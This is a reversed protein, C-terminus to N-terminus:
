QVYGNLRFGNSRYWKYKNLKYVSPNEGDFYADVAEKLTDYYSMHALECTKRVSLSREQWREGKESTVGFSVNRYCVAARIMREAHNNTPDIKPNRLFLTISDLEDLIRAVLTSAGGGANKFEAARDRIEQKIVEIEIESHQKGKMKCLAQLKPLLWEGCKAIRECLSGKLKRAARILHALCTQRGYEWKIYTVFDDSILIGRWADILKYFAEKTRREDIRFFAFLDNCLVWLWHLHKGEPGFMRSSTEDVHNYESGRVKRAIADYYPILAESVRDLIKQIGGQSIVGHFVEQIIKQTQRRTTATQSDIYGIFATLLSGYARRYKEPVVGYVKKGCKACYGVYVHFHTVELLEQKLEIFQTTYAEVVDVFDSSGCNPCVEPKCDVVKNPKLMKQSAGPHHAKRRKKEKTVNKDDSDTSHSEEKTPKQEEEKKGDGEDDLFKLVVRTGDASNEDKELAFGHKELTKDFNKKGFPSDKSPPRNSNSSSTSFYDSVECLLNKLQQIVKDSVNKLTKYKEALENYMKGNAELLGKLATENARRSRLQDQYNKKQEQLKEEYAKKQEQLKKEYAEKQKQLKREFAEKQEQLKKEYEEKIAQVARCCVDADSSLAPCIGDPNDVRVQPSNHPPSNNM